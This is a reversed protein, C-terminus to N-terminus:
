KERVAAKAELKAAGRVVLTWTVMDFTPQSMIWEAIEESTLKWSDAQQPRIYWDLFSGWYFQWPSLMSQWLKQSVNRGGFYDFLIARSLTHPGEGGYGWAFRSNDEHPVNDVANFLLEGNVTVIWNAPTKQGEYVKSEM